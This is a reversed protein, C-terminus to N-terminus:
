EGGIKLNAREGKRKAEMLIAGDVVNLCKYCLRREPKGLFRYRIIENKTM